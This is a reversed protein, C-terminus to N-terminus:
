EPLATRDLLLSVAVFRYGAALALPVEERLVQLTVPHPHGIAVAAGDRRALDLLRRFQYRVADATLDADLFVDREAAAMGDARATAYAVSEATTRSDLFFLGRSGLEGMVVRMARRDASLVSGMHNNVGAAGPVAALARRVAARLEGDGMDQRLAGPGPDAGDRGEMPLHLLMEAGRLRLAAAVQATHSEFPLVAYTLPVGLAALDDVDAPRRGLDDIVLAVYAGSRPAAPPPGEPVPPPQQAPPPQEPETPYVHQPPVGAGSARAAPAASLPTVAASGGAGGEAGPVAGPPLSSRYLWWAVAVAALAGLLFLALGGPGIRRSRSRRRRRRPV